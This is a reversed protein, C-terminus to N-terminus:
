RGLAVIFSKWSIEYWNIVYVAKDCLIGSGLGFGGMHSFLVTLQKVMTVIYCIYVITIYLGHRLPQDCFCYKAHVPYELPFIRKM